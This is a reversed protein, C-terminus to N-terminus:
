SDKRFRFADAFKQANTGSRSHILNTVDILHRAYANAVDDVISRQEDTQPAYRYTAENPGTQEIFGSEHLQGLIATTAAYSIYLRKAVQDATWQSDPSARLLLLAELYPVSVISKLIFRKVEDSIEERDM